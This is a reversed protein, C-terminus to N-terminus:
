RRVYSTPRPLGSRAMPPRLNSPPRLGSPKALGSSTQAMSKVPNVTTQHPDINNTKQALSIGSNMNVSSSIDEISNTACNQVNNAINQSDVRYLSGRSSASSSSLSNISETDSDVNKRHSSYSFYGSSPRVLGLRSATKPARMHVGSLETNSNNHSLKQASLGLPAPIKYLNSNSGGLNSQNYYLNHHSKSKTGMPSKLNSQVLNGSAGKGIASGNSGFGLKGGLSVRQQQSLPQQYNPRDNELNDTSCSKAALPLSLDKRSLSLGGEPAGFYRPKSLSRLKNGPKPIDQPRKFVMEETKSQDVNHTTSPRMENPSNYDVRSFASTVVTPSGPIEEEVPLSTSEVPCDETEGPDQVVVMGEERRKNIRITKFRDRNKKDCSGVESATPLPDMGDLTKSENTENQEPEQPPTEACISLQQQQQPSLTLHVDENYRSRRNLLRESGGSSSMSKNMSEMLKNDFLSASSDNMEVRKKFDEQQKESNIRSHRKKINDLSQRMKVSDVSRKVDTISNLMEDFDVGNHESELISKEFDEFHQLSIRKENDLLHLGNSSGTKCNPTPPLKRFEVDFEDTETYNVIEKELNRSRRSVESKRSSSSTIPSINIEYQSIDSVRKAKPVQVFPTSQVALAADGNRLREATFELTGNLTRNSMAGFYEPSDLNGEFTRNNPKEFTRETDPIGPSVKECYDYTHNLQKEAGNVKATRNLSFTGNCENPVGYTGDLHVGAKLSEITQNSPLPEDVDVNPLAKYTGNLSSKPKRYTDFDRKREFTRNMKEKVVPAAETSDMEFTENGLVVTADLVSGEPCKTVSELSNQMTSFGSLSEEIGNLDTKSIASDKTLTNDDFCSLHELLKRDRRVDSLKYGNYNSQSSLMDETGSTNLLYSVNTFDGSTILSNGMKENVSFEMSAMISGPPSVDNLWSRQMIQSTSHTGGSSALTVPGGIQLNLLPSAVKMPLEQGVTVPNACIGPSNLTSEFKKKPRTFTRTDINKLGKSDSCNSCSSRSSNHIISNGYHNTISAVGTGVTSSSPSAQVVFVSTSPPTTSCSKWQKLIEVVEDDLRETDSIFSDDGLVEDVNIIDM